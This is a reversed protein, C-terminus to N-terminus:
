AHLACAVYISTSGCNKIKSPNAARNYGVWAVMNPVMKKTPRVIKMSPYADPSGALLTGPENIAYMPNSGNNYKAHLTSYTSYPFQYAATPIPKDAKSLAAVM